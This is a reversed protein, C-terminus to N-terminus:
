PRAYEYCCALVLDDAPAVSATFTVANTAADWSGARAAGTNTDWVKAKASTIAVKDAPLTFTTDAGDGVWWIINFCHETIVESGVAELCGHTAMALLEGWLRHKAAGFAMQYEKILADPSYGAPTPMIKARPFVNSRWMELGDEDHSILQQLLLGCQPEGGEQDTGIEVIKAEAMTNQIVGQLIANLSQKDYSCRLIGTKPDVSPLQITDRVRGQAVNPIVRQTGFDLDFSQPGVFEYGEYAASNVPVPFGTTRDLPFVVVRYIDLGWSVDLPAM